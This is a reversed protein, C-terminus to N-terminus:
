DTSDAAADEATGSGRSAQWAKYLEPLKAPDVDAAASTNKGIEVYLYNDESDQFVVGLSHVFVIRLSDLQQGLKYLRTGRQNKIYAGKEKGYIIAPHSSEKLHAIPCIIM